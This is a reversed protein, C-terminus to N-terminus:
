IKESNSLYYYPGTESFEADQFKLDKLTKKKLVQSTSTDYLNSSSLFYIDSQSEIFPVEDKFAIFAYERDIRKLSAIESIIDWLGTQEHASERILNQIDTM